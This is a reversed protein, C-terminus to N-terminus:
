PPRYIMALLLKPWHYGVLVQQTQFGAVSGLVVSGLDEDRNHGASYKLGQPVSDIRMASIGWGDGGNRGPRNM